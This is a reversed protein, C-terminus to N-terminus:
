RETQSVNSVSVESSDSFTLQHTLRLDRSSSGLRIEFEGTEAVWTKLNPDFYSFASRDLSLEVRQEQGPVLHVRQFAKLEQPPRPVSSAKDSVYLQVVETGVRRSSNKMTFSVRLDFPDKTEVVLDMYEFQSYSLGHGFPYQPAIKEQDLYRYGVFIGEDYRAKLDAGRYGIFAPSDTPKEVFSFPLKGSPNHIGFLVDAIAHGGEQGPYWAQLIAAVDDHWSNMAVSTGTELVVITNPNAAAVAEILEDQRGLSFSERDNGEGEHRSSLGAVVIAVDADRAAAVAEQLLNQGPIRWGLKMSSAWERQYYELAIPYSKGRELAISATHVLSPGVREPEDLLVSGDVVLRAGHPHLVSFEYVGDVPSHVYGTWRVSFKNNDDPAHLAPHPAGYSWFFSILPDIRELVPFGSLDESAYYQGLLGQKRDSGRDSLLPLPSLFSSDIPLLDNEVHTGPAVVIEVDGEVAQRIGDAASVTYSPVVLSSGGAGSIPEIANPGIVAIRQIGDMALPLVGRSNKLLVIGSRAARRALTRHEESDVVDPNLEFEHDFIGAKMRATMIRRVKDNIVSEQVAGERVAKLLKEGFFEGFPMELDLGSNATPITSVAAAWDSVVYGEFGWEKKLVENLLFANESTYVGNLVNYATMVTHVGGEQVAAKFAPFYIERLARESVRVDIESRKWEQNNAAFHKAAALVRNSQVGQIYPVAMRSALYPDEGYSEFNRGGLPHRHINICPGLLYSVGKAEAEAGIASGVQFLLEEDWTAALAISAPFATAVGKRVGVPGDAMSVAPIGLRTNAVTDFGVGSLQEIKEELTMRVILDAARIDAPLSSDQYPPQVEDAHCALSFIGVLLLTTSVMAVHYARHSPLSLREM